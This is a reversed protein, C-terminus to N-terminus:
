KSVAERVHRAVTRNIIAAEDPPLGTDMAIRRADALVVFTGNTGVNVQAIERWPLHTTVGFQRTVLGDNSAELRYTLREATLALTLVGVLVAAYRFLRETLLAALALAGATALAAGGAYLAPYSVTMASNHVTLRTSGLAIWSGAFIASGALGGLVYRSKSGLGM